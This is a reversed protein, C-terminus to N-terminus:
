FLSRVATLRGTVRAAMAQSGADTFHVSDTFHRDDGPIDHEGDILQAGAESAVDRIVDNYRAYAALLGEPTMFPM